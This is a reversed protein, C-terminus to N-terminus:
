SKLFLLAYLKRFLGEILADIDLQYAKIGDPSCAALDFAAYQEIYQHLVPNFHSYARRLFNKLMEMNRHAQASLDCHTQMCSKENQLGDPNSGKIEGSNLSDIDFQDTYWQEYVPWQALTGDYSKEDVFSFEDFPTIDTSFLYCAALSTSFFKFESNILNEIEVYQKPELNLLASYYNDFIYSKVQPIVTMALTKEYFEANSVNRKTRKAEKKM